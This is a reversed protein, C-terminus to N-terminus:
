RKGSRVAALDIEFRAIWRQIQNRGKGMELAVATVNGGGRHLLEVIRERLESEAGTLSRKIRRAPRLPAGPGDPPTAPAIPRLDRVAQPLHHPGILVPEGKGGGALDVAALLAHRLERVNLPWSYRLVLRLADPDFRIRELGASAPRLLARVLLGLDERRERLAPVRVPLLGLRGLLDQRFKGQAVLEGLKEHTAALVRIDGPHERLM